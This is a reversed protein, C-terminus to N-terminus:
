DAFPSGGCQSRGIRAMWDCILPYEHQSVTHDAIVVLGGRALQELAPSHEPIAIEALVTPGGGADDLRVISRREDDFVWISCRAGNISAQGQQAVVTVIDDVTVAAAMGSAIDYMVQLRSESREAIRQVHLLEAEYNRRETADFVIIEVFSGAADPRERRRFNVLSPQRSGDSRVIELAIESAERRVQLMPRLHTDFYIRGGPALLDQFTRRGVLEAPSYSLSQALTTNIWAIVGVDDTIVFGFPGDDM